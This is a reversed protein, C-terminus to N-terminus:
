VGGGRHQPRVTLLGSAIPPRRDGDAEIVWIEYGRQGPSLALTQTHTLAFTVGQSAGGADTLTGTLTELHTELQITLGSLDGFEAVPLSFSITQEMDAKYDANQWIVVAGSPAVPAISLLSVPGTMSVAVLDVELQDTGGMLADWVNDPVIVFQGVEDAGSVGDVTAAVRVHYLKGVEFGAAATCQGRAVYYGTTNADDRKACDGTAVATENNEEYVRFTPLADADTAVGGIVQTNFGAEFYDDIRYWPNM